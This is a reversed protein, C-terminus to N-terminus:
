QKDFGTDLNEYEKNNVRIDTNKVDFGRGEPTKLSLEPYCPDCVAESFFYNKMQM